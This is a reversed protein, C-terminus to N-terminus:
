VFERAVKEDYLRHFVLNGNEWADLSGTIYFWNEDGHMHVIAKTETHWNNRAVVQTWEIDVTASLPDDPHISWHEQMDSGSILQHDSDRNEGFDNHIYTNWTGNDSDVLLRRTSNAERIVEHRWALASEPLDFTCENDERESHRVPLVLSLSELSITPSHPSPWVFPWYSTSVAVRIRHGAPVKYAIQDLSFQANIIEGKKLRAPHENSNAHTLNLLGLTILASSGDPYVDCLRVALLALPKDVYCAVNLLPAGVVDM